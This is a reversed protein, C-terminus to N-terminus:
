VKTGRIWLQVKDWDTVIALVALIWLPKWILGLVCLWFVLKAQALGKEKALHKPISHIHWLKAAVWVIIGLTILVVFWMFGISDLLRYVSPLSEYTLSTSHIHM